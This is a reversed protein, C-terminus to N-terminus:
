HGPVGANIIEVDQHGLHRLYRETLHPWDHGDVASLDFAGSGGLVVVRRIGRPKPVAFLRGRYGLVNIHATLRGDTGRLTQPIRALVDRSFLSAEYQLSARRETEPTM